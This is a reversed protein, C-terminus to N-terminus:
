DQLHLAQALRFTFRHGTSFRVDSPNPLSSTQVVPGSDVAAAAASGEGLIESGPATAAPKLKEYSGGKAFISSTQLPILKGNLAISALTLRLYGPDYVGASAKTAVVRGTVPASRPVVTKGTVIVPDDLVAEFSDGTRADASSLPSRLVVTIGTGAPLADSAFADTPSIGGSDSLRDFPIQGRDASGASVPVALQRSCGTTWALIACALGAAIKLRGVQWRRKM